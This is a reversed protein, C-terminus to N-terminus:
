NKARAARIGDEEKEFEDLEKEARDLREESAGEARLDKLEQRAEETDREARAIDGGGKKAPAPSAKAPTPVVVAAPADNDSAELGNRIDRIADEEKEFEDLEKEARDLREESAGAARLGNLEARAEETDREARAIDGGVRRDDDTAELSAASTVRTKVLEFSGKAYHKTVRKGKKEGTVVITDKTEEVGLDVYGKSNLAELAGMTNTPDAAFAMQAPLIAAIIALKTSKMTTAGMKLLLVRFFRQM